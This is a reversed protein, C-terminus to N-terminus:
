LSERDAFWEEVDVVCERWEGPYERERSVHHVLSRPVWVERADKHGKPFTSFLYAKETDRVQWLRVSRTPRNSM